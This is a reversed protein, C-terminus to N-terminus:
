RLDGTAPNDLLKGDQTFRSGHCACDWTHEQANWHLACGMHPCRKKSFRLLNSAAELGNLALQPRLVSRSPSFVPAYPNERELILDTLLRAAVMSSTMGWKCFGTAVFFDPTHRSYRGIYPIDDLTMCDQTAWRYREEASPYHRTSFDELEHYGGGQKGTRHSGGGLLLLSGASRFSLGDAAADVYMGGYDPANELAIVYSRHQYLKLFYSGHKNLFPFHTAVVIKKASVTGADTRATHTLMERVPTNEYIKLDRAVSDLFKLPHFQAQKPFCVAGQTELPLPLERVLKAPYHLRNLAALERELEQASSRSYVFSDREEFDCDISACLERYSELAARNAELYMQARETGFRQLLKDYILGHQATIKATTSGTVGGCITKAELVTCDVGAQKM